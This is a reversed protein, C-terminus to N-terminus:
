CERGERPGTYKGGIGLYEEEEEESDSRMLNKDEMTDSGTNSIGKLRV